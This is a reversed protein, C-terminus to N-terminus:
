VGFANIDSFNSKTQKENNEGRIQKVAGPTNVM